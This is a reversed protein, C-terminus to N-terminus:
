PLNFPYEFNGYQSTVARARHPTTPGVQGGTMGYNFNNACIVTIDLNRRAAHIFHNGGIGAIDGDGSFVVVKLEPRALKLGTAFPIARGHTTHFSDLRLYGAVRGTCGIGSVVAVKDLDWERNAALWQLASIFTTLSTGLGCGQCWIHPLREGRLLDDMPHLGTLWDSEGPPEYGLTKLRESVHLHADQM